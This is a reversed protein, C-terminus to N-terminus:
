DYAYPVSNCNFYNPSHSVLERTEPDLLGNAVNVLYRREGHPLMCPPEFTGPTLNSSQLEEVTEAVISRNVQPPKPKKPEKGNGAGSEFIVLDEQYKRKMWEYVRDFRKGIHTRVKARVEKDPVATYRQGDYHYLSDRYYRWTGGFGVALGRPDDWPREPE